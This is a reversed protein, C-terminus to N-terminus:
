TFVGPNALKYALVDIEDDCLEEDVAVLEYDDSKHTMQSAEDEHCWSADPWVHIITSM